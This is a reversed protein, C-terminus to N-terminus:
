GQRELIRVFEDGRHDPLAAFLQKIRTKRMRVSAETLDAHLFCISKASFGYFFLLLLETDEKNVKGMQSLEKRARDMLGNRSVNLANELSAYLGESHRFDDLQRQFDEVLEDKTRDGYRKEKQRVRSSDWSFYANSLLNLSRIKDKTYFDLLLRSASDKSQLRELEDNFDQIQAMTELKEQRERRLRGTLWLIIGVLLLGCFSFLFVRTRGKEHELVAQNQYYDEMAHTISQELQASVIRNQIEMAKGYFEKAQNDEGKIECVNTLAIYYVSSDVASLLTNKAKDCYYDSLETNGRYQAIMGLHGYDQCTLTITGKRLILRYLAEAQDYDPHPKFLYLKALSQCAYPILHVSDQGTSLIGKLIIEASDLKYQAIYQNAVDLRCFDAMLTDGSQIAAVLSQQAYDMARARDYNDSYISRLHQSCLSARRHDGLAEARKKEEIFCLAARVDKNGNELVVGMYYTAKLRNEKSGHRKYWDYAVRIVSDEAVDIYCKDLVETTLLAHRARSPRTSLDKRPISNLIVLASDPVESSLMEAKDLMEKTMHSFCSTLLLLFFLLFRNMQIM